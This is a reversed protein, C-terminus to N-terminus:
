SRADPQGGTYSIHSGPEVAEGGLHLGYKLSIGEASV